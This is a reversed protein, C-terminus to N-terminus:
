ARSATGERADGPGGRPCTTSLAKFCDRVAATPATLHLDWSARTEGDLLIAHLRWAHRFASPAGRPAHRLHATYAESSTARCRVLSPRPMCRESPAERTTRRSRRRRGDHQVRWVRVGRGRLTPLQAALRRSPRRHRATREGGRRRRPLSRRRRRRSRSRGAATGPSSRAAPRRNLRWMARDAEERSARRCTRRIKRASGRPRRRWAGSEVVEEGDSSDSGLLAAEVPARRRPSRRTSAVRGRADRPAAGAGAGTGHERRAQAAVAATTTGALRRLPQRRTAGSRKAKAAALAAELRRVEEDDDDDDSSDPRQPGSATM